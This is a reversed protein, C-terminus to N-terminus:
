DTMLNTGPVNPPWRRSTSRCAHECAESRDAAGATVWVVVYSRERDLELFVTCGTTGARTNWRHAYSLKGRLWKSGLRGNTL